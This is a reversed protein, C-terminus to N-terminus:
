RNEVADDDPWRMDGAPRVETEKKGLANVVSRLARVEEAM